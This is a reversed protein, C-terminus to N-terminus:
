LAYWEQRYCTLATGGCAWDGDTLMHEIHLQTGGPLIGNLRAFTHAQFEQRSKYHGVLPHTGEVTWDVNDAVHEFFRDGSGTELHSFIRKVTEVGIGMITGEKSRESQGSHLHHPAFKTGVSRHGSFM